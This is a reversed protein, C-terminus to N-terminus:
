LEPRVLRLRATLVPPIESFQQWDTLRKGEDEPAFAPELMGDVAFGAAFAEGFLVSLPRDFYYHPAPQGIMALGKKPSNTLYRTVKISCTRVIEGDRDEEEILRSIGTHNFCPHCLAFVFRGDPKLLKASARMLPGIEAMDMIAMSCVIADFRREGLALLAAEDTADLTQYTIRDAIEPERGTRERALEILTGSFDTATIQGGLQALQRALQGNGCAVELVEEDPGLELLTTISPLVLQLHFENGEGMREDWFVANEDWIARVEDNFASKHTTMRM